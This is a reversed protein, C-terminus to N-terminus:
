KSCAERIAELVGELNDFIENNWFRLVTFGNWELEMDRELDKLTHEAHQSGDLEIIVRKEFSVFDVIFKEISEQRGM